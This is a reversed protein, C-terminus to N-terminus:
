LWHLASGKLSEKSDDSVSASAGIRDSRGRRHGIWGRAKWTGGFRRTKSVNSRCLSAAGAKVVALITVEIEHVFQSQTYSVIEEAFEHLVDLMRGDFGM